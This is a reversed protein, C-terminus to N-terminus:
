LLQVTLHEYQSGSFYILSSNEIQRRGYFAEIHDAIGWSFLLGPNFRANHTFLWAPKKGLFAGPEKAVVELPPLTRCCITLSEQLNQWVSQRHDCGKLLPRTNGPSAGDFVRVAAVETIPDLPSLGATELDIAFYERPRNYPSTYNVNAPFASTPRPTQINGM